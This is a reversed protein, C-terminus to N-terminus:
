VGNVTTRYERVTALADEVAAAVDGDGDDILDQLAHMHRALRGHDPGREQEALGALQDAQTRIRDALEGDAADAARELTESAEQLAEIAM